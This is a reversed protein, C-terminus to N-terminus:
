GTASGMRRIMSDLYYTVLYNNGIRNFQQIKLVFGQCKSLDAQFPERIVLRKLSCVVSYGYPQHKSRVLSAFNPQELLNYM